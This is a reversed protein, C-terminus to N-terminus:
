ESLYHDYTADLSWSGAICAAEFNHSLSAIRNELPTKNSDCERPVLRKEFFQLLTEYVNNNNINM